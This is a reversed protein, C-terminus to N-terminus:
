RLREVVASTSLGAQTPFEWAEIGLAAAGQRKAGTHPDGATFALAAPGLGALLTVYDEPATAEPPGDILFVGDVPRLAAMVEARLALPNLPRGPGKWHQVRADAELGVLLPRARARAWTLFRVHGAHLVDFVGTVVVPAPAPRAPPRVWWTLSLRPAEGPTPPQSM